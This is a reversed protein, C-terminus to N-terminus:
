FATLAAKGDAREVSHWRVADQPCAEVCRGCGNCKDPDIFAIRRLSIAETPCVDRCSGCSICREPDVLPRFSSPTGRHALERIRKMLADLRDEIDKTRKKLTRLENKM